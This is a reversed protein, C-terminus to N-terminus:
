YEKAGALATALGALRRWKGVSEGLGIGFKLYTTFLQVILIVTDCMHKFRFSAGCDVMGIARITLRCEEALCVRTLMRCDTSVRLERMLKTSLMGLITMPSWM